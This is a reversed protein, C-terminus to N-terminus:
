LTARAAVKSKVTRRDLGLRRAAGDYSGTIRYVQKAYYSLLEDATLDGARFRTAFEEEPTAARNGIPLYSRRIIVNRVCQELERYNGPWTYAAPLNTRIWVEIDPLCRDAEAGVTRLTMYHLLEHLM